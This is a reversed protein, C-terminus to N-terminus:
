GGEYTEIRDAVAAYGAIDILNDRKPHHIERSIKVAVMCLAADKATVETELIVSWLAATKTYDDYPHGYDAERPGYVLRQAEELITPEQEPEQQRRILLDREFDIDHITLELRQATDNELCAGKSERWGPLRAVAGCDTILKIDARLYDAWDWGDTDHEDDIDIPTVAQFGGQLEVMRAGKLFSERNYNKCDTMPGLVYCRAESMAVVKQM